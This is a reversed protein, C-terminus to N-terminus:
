GATPLAQLYALAGGQKGHGVFDVSVRTLRDVSNIETTGVCQMTRCLCRVGMNFDAVAVINFIKLDYELGAVCCEPTSNGGLLLSKTVTFSLLAGFRREDWAMAQKLSAMAWHTKGIVKKDAYVRLAVEQGSKTTFTDEICSLRGAVLAFLYSPKPFPDHWVAFHRCCCLHGNYM